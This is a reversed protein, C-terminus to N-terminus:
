RKFCPSECPIPIALSTANRKSFFTGFLPAMLPVSLRVPLCVSLDLVYNGKELPIIMCCNNLLIQTNGSPGPQNFLKAILDRFDAAAGDVCTCTLHVLYLGVPTVYAASGVEYLTIPELAADHCNRPYSLITIDQQEAVHQVSRDTLLIARSTRRYADAATNTQEQKFQTPAYSAEM